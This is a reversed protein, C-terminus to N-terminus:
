ARRRGTWPMGTRIPASSTSTTVREVVWEGPATAEARRAIVAYLEDLSGIRPPSCDVEALSMGFGTMHNHADIFGPMLTAGRLDVVRGANLGAPSDALAEVRGGTVAVARAWPRAPDM